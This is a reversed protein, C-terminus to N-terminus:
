DDMTYDLSQVPSVQMLVYVPIPSRLSIPVISYSTWISVCALTFLCIIINPNCGM